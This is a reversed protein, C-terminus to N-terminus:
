VPVVNGLTKEAGPLPLTKAAPSSTIAHPTKARRVVPRYRRVVTFVKLRRIRPLAVTPPLTSPRRRAPPPEQCGVLSFSGVVVFLGLVCVCLFSLIAADQQTSNLGDCRGLVAAVEEPTLRDTHTTTPPPINPVAGPPILPRRWHVTARRRTLARRRHETSARPPQTTPNPRPVASANGGLALNVFM